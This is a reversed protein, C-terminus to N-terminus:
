YVEEIKKRIIKAMKLTDEKEDNFLDAYTRLLAAKAGNASNSIHPSSIVRFSQIEYQYFLPIRWVPTM